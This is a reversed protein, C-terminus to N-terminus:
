VSGEKGLIELADTLNPKGVEVSPKLKYKNLLLSIEPLLSYADRIQFRITKRNIKEYNLEKLERVEKEFEPYLSLEVVPVDFKLDILELKLLKKSIDRLKGIELIKGEHLIAARDSLLEIETLNQSTLLISNGARSFKTLYNYINKLILPDINRSIEDCFLMKSDPILGLLISCLQLQGGSMISIKKDLFDRNPCISQTLFEIRENIFDKKLGKLKSFYILNERGTLWSNMKRSGDQPIWDIKKILSKQSKSPILKCVEIMGSDKELVGVCIKVFTTKGAGNLGILGFIEGSTISLTVDQLAKLGGPYTKKIGVASLM